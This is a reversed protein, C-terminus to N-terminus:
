FAFPYALSGVTRGVLVPTHQITSSLLRGPEVTSPLLAADTASFFAPREEGGWRAKYKRLSKNLLDTIGFDMSRVGRAALEDFAAALMLYNARLRWSASDSASYKYVAHNRAVLFVGNAILKGGQYVGITLADNRKHLNWIHSWYRRPQTPAGLRRRSQAILTLSAGLFEDRSTITRATLEADPREARKVERRTGAGTRRLVGEAGDAVDLVQVTGVQRSFWGPLGIDTRILIPSSQTHAAAILLEDRRQHNIAVPEFTDTFPLATWGRRWPLKRRVLPLAAVMTRQSDALTIVRSHLGYAGTITDLWGPHQTPSTAYASAFTRWPEDDPSTINVTVVLSVRPAAQFKAPGGQYVAPNQSKSPSGGAIEGVLPARQRLCQSGLIHM